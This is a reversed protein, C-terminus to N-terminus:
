RNPALNQLYLVAATILLPLILIATLITYPKLNYGAKM